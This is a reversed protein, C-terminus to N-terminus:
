KINYYRMEIRVITVIVAAAYQAYNVYHTALSMEDWKNSGLIIIM